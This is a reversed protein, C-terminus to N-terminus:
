RSAERTGLLPNPLPRCLLSLIRTTLPIRPCGFGLVTRALIELDSFCTRTREYELSIAVKLPLIKEIYQQEISGQSYLEQENRFWLSALCTIGPPEQLLQRYEDRRFAVFREVQPRVGVFRMEGKWVNVLQPLEDLKYKRLVRGVRTIRADQPATLPSGSSSTFMSRFKRVRFEELGKGVRIHFYFVPGGDELKIVLAIAGFLPALLVLGAASCCIDFARRLLRRTSRLMESFEERACLWKANTEKRNACIEGPRQDPMEHFLQLRMRRYDRQAM